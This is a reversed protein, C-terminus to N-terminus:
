KKAPTAAPQKADAPKTDSGAKADVTTATMKYIVTAKGGVKLDGTVKTDKHARDAVEGQGEGHHGDQRHVELIPGTVQYTKDAAFVSSTVLGVVVFAALMVFTRIAKM